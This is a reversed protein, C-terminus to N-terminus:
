PAANRLQPAFRELEIRWRLLAEAARRSDVDTVRVSVGDNTGRLQPRDALLLGVMGAPVHATLARTEINLTGIVVNRVRLTVRDGRLEARLYPWSDLRRLLEGLEGPQRSGVQTDTGGPDLISSRSSPRRSQRDQSQAPTRAADVVEGM